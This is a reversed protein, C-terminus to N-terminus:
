APADVIELVTRGHFASSAARLPLQDSESPGVTQGPDFQVGRVVIYSTADALLTFLESPRRPSHEVLLDAHGFTDLGLTYASHTGDDEPVVWVSTWLVMPVQEAAVAREFIHTYEDAPFAIGASAALVAVSEPREVLRTAIVSFMTAGQLAQTRPEPKAGPHMVTIVVHATHAEAVASGDPWWVPHCVRAVQGADLAADVPTVLATVADVTVVVADFRGKGPVDITQEHVAAGFEARLTRAVDSAAPAPGSVLVYGSVPSAVPPHEFATM